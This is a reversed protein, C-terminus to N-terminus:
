LCKGSQRGSGRLEAVLGGRADGFAPSMPSMSAGFVYSNSQWPGGVPLFPMVQQLGGVFPTAQPVGGPVFLQSFAVPGGAASATPSLGGAMLESAESMGGHDEEFVKGSEEQEPRSMAKAAAAGLEAVMHFGCSLSGVCVCQGASCLSM